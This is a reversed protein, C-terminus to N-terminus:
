GQPLKPATAPMPPRSVAAPPVPQGPAAAPPYPVPQPFTAAPLSRFWVEYKQDIRGLLRGLGVALLVFGALAVLGFLVALGSFAEASSDYFMSAADKVVEGVAAISLWTSLVGGVVSLVLGWVLMAASRPM